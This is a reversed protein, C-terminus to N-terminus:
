CVTPLAMGPHTTRPIYSLLIFLGPPALWFAANQQPEQRSKDGHCLTVQSTYFSISGRREVGKATHKKGVATRVGGECGSALPFEGERHRSCGLREAGTVERREPGLPFVGPHHQGAFVADWLHFHSFWLNLTM